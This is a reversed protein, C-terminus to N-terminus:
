NRRSYQNMLRNHLNVTINKIWEKLFENANEITEIGALALDVALRSQVTGNLREIRGKAQPISTSQLEIGLQHCAFGFQTYTDEEVQKM